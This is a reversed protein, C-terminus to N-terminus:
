LWTAPEKSLRKMEKVFAAIHIGDVIRHDFTMGLRAVPRVVVNDQGAADTEVLPKKRVSCIAIVCPIRSYPAIITFGGDIGLSGVNTVMVSGFADKPIGLASLNLNLTYSFFGTLDLVLKSLWGPCLRFLAKVQHFTKDQGSRVALVRNEIEHALKSLDSEHPNLLKFGSLDDPTTVAHFFLDVNKREYIAGARVVSNIQRTLDNASIAKAIMKSFVANVPFNGNKFSGGDSQDALNALIHHLPLDLEVFVSSDGTPRWSGM